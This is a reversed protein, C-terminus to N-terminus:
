CKGCAVYCPYTLDGGYGTDSVYRIRIRTPYPMSVYGRLIPSFIFQLIISVNASVYQLAIKSVARCLRSEPSSSRKGTRLRADEKISKKGNQDEQAKIEKKGMRDLM